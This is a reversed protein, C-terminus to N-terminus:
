FSSMKLIDYVKKPPLGLSFNEDTSLTSYVFCGGQYSSLYHIENPKFIYEDGVEYIKGTFKDILQGKLIVGYEYENDHIHPMIYSHSDYETILHKCNNIFNLAMIKVGKSINVPLVEWRDKIFMIEDPTVDPFKIIFGDFRKKINRLNNVAKLYNENKEKFFSKFINM